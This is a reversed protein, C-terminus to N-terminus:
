VPNCCAMDSPHGDWETHSRTTAGTKAHAVHGGSRTKAAQRCDAKMCCWGESVASEANCGAHRIYGSNGRGQTVKCLRIVMAVGGSINHDLPWILLHVHHPMLVIPGFSSIM